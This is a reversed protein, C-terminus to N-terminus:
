IRGDKRDRNREFANVKMPHFQRAKEGEILLINVKTDVFLYKAKMPGYYM